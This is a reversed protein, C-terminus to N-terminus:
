AASATEVSGVAELAQRAAQVAWHEFPLSLPNHQAAFFRFLNIETHALNQHAVLIGAIM